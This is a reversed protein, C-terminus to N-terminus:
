PLDTVVLNDIHANVNDSRVGIRGGSTYAPGCQATGGVDVAELDVAPGVGPVMVQITVSDNATNKVTATLGVRNVGTNPPYSGTPTQALIVYGDDHPCGAPPPPAGPTGYPIRKQIILKGSYLAYEATYGAQSGSDNVRGCDGPEPVTPNDDPTCWKRRLWLKVGHYGQRYAADTIWSDIKLDHTVKVDLYNTDRTWMRFPYAQANKGLATNTQPVIKGKNNDITIKGNEALWRSNEASGFNVPDSWFADASVWTSGATGTFTENLLPTGCAATNITTPLSTGVNGSPDRAKVTATYSTGCTLGTYTYTGGIEDFDHIEKPPVSAKFAGNLYLDYGSVYVDDSATFWDVKVSSTTASIQRPPFATPATTDSWPVTTIVLKPTFAAGDEKSYAEFYNSSTLSYSWYGGNWRTYQTVDMALCDATTCTTPGSAAGAGDYALPYNEWTVNNEDWFLRGTQLRFGASSALVPTLKLTATGVAENPGLVNINFRIASGMCAAPSGCPPSSTSGRAKLNDPGYNRTPNAQDVRADDVPTLTYTSADATPSLWVMSLGLVALLKRM